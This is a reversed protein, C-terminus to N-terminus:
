SVQASEKLKTNIFQACDILTQSINESELPKTELTPIIVIQRLKEENDLNETM